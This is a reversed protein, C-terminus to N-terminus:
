TLTIGDSGVTISKAPLGSTAPGSLVDGTTMDFQSGHCPCIIKGDTVGGVTCGQHPCVASFAKFDGKTPQTVVVKLTDFVKGGGVPVEAEQIRAGVSSAAASAAAAVSRAADQPQGGCAALGTAGLAVVGLTGVTRLADRRSACHCPAPDPSAPGTASAHRRDDQTPRTM